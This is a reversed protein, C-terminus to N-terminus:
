NGAKSKYKIIQSVLLALAVVILLTMIMLVAFASAYAYNYFQFAEKQLLLPLTETSGAPGGNSMIKIIGFSNFTWIFCLSLVSITTLLIHPLQIKSFIQFRNAGDIVAAEIQENSLSQLKAFVTISLIPFGRWACALISAIMAYFSNSFIDVDHPIINLLVLLHRYIGSQYDFLLKWVYGTIVEPLVWPLLLLLQFAFRGRIGHSNLIFASCLGLILMFFISGCVYILSKALADLFEGSKLITIYNELGISSYNPNLLRYNTFSYIFNQIFPIFIILILLLTGPTLLAYSFITNKYKNM